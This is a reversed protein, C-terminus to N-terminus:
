QIIAETDRQLMVLHDHYLRARDQWRTVEAILEAIIGALLGVNGLGVSIRKIQEFREPTM